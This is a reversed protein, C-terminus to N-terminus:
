NERIYITDITSQRLGYYTDEEWVIEVSHINDFIQLDGTDISDLSINGTISLTQTNATNLNAGPTTVDQLQMAKAVVSEQLLINRQSTIELDANSVYTSIVNNSFEIQENRFM